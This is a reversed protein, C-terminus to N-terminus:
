SKAIAHTLVSVHREPFTVELMSAYRMLNSKAAAEEADAEGAKDVSLFNAMANQQLREAELEEAKIRQRLQDTEALHWGDPPSKLRRRAVRLLTVVHKQWSEVYGAIESIERIHLRRGKSAAWLMYLLLNVDVGFRDQLELCISAVNPKAYTQLSFTWFDSASDSM